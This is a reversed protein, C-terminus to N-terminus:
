FSTALTVASLLRSLRPDPDATPPLGLPSVSGGPLLTGSNGVPCLQTEGPPFGPQLLGRCGGLAACGLLSWFKQERCLLSIRVLRFCVFALFLLFVGRWVMHPICQPCLEWSQSPPQCPGMPIAAAGALGFSCFHGQSPLIVPMLPWRDDPVMLPFSLCCLLWRTLGSTDM